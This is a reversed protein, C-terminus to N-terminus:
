CEAFGRSCINLLYGSRNSCIGTDSSFEQISRHSKASRAELLVNQVQHVNTLTDPQGVNGFVPMRHDGHVVILLLPKDFTDNRSHKVRNLLLFNGNIAKSELLVSSVGTLRWGDIHAFPQHSVPSIQVNIVGLHFFLLDSSIQGSGFKLPVVRHGMSSGCTHLVDGNCLIWHLGDRSSMCNTHQCFPVLELVVVVLLDVVRHHLWSENKISPINQIM